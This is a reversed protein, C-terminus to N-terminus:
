NVADPYPHWNDPQETLFANISGATTTATATVVRIGCYREYTQGQPLAVIFKEGLALTAADFALAGTEWHDTPSTALDATSDSSFKINVTASGASAFAETIGIVLYIPEGRGVNVVATGLDLVDGAVATGASASVDEDDCFETREDLWM